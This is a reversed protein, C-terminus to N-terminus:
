EFKTTGTHNSKKGEMTPNVRIHIAELILRRRLDPESFLFAAKGFEVNHQTTQQHNSIASSKDFTRCAQKDQSIRKKIRQMTQGIYVSSCEACPINYIGSKTEQKNKRKLIGAISAGAHCMNDSMTSLNFKYYKKKKIDVQVASNKLKEKIINSYNPFQQFVFSRRLPKLVYKELKQKRMDTIIESFNINNRRQYRIDEKLNKLYGNLRLPNIEVCLKDIKSCVSSSKVRREYEAKLTKFLLPTCTFIHGAGEKDRVFHHILHSQIDKVLYTKRAIEFPRMENNKIMSVDEIDDAYFLDPIHGCSIEIDCM